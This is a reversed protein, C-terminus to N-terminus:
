GLNRGNKRTLGPEKDSGEILTFREESKLKIAEDLLEKTNRM